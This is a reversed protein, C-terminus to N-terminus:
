YHADSTESGGSCIVPTTGYGVGLRHCGMEVFALAEQRSRIGGSAKVKIQGKAAELMSRVAEITAGAGNFGTSTKVYDAGLFACIRTAQKIEEFSLLATELIVKLISGSPKLIRSIADIDAEFTNWDGSRARGFNSVMDIEPVGNDAYIAAEKQKTRSDVCGHPFGLTGCVETSSGELLGQALNLDSPRICVTRLQM